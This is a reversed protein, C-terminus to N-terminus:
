VGNILIYYIQCYDHLCMDYVYPFFFVCSLFLLILLLRFLTFNSEQSWFGFYHFGDVMLEFWGDVAEFWGGVAEFVM